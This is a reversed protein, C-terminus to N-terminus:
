RRGLADFVRGVALSLGVSLACWLILVGLATM